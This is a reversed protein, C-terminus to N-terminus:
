QANKSSDELTKEVFRALTLRELKAQKKANDKVRKLIKVNLQEEIM